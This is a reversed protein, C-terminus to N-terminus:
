KLRQNVKELLDQYPGRHMGTLKHEDEFRPDGRGAVMYADCELLVQQPTTLERLFVKVRVWVKESSWDGYVFTNMSSGEKEFVFEGTPRRTGLYGNEKFVAQTAAEVQLM